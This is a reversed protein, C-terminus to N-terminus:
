QRAMRTDKAETKATEYDADAQASCAAQQGADRTLCKELAIKHVGDAKVMAIDYSGVAKAHAVDRPGGIKVASKVDKAAEAKAAAVDRQVQQEAVAVDDATAHPGQAGHCGAICAVALFSLAISLKRKM